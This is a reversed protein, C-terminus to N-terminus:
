ISLTNWNIMEIKYKFVNEDANKLIHDISKAMPTLQHLYDISNTTLIPWQLHDDFNTM